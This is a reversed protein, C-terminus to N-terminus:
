HHGSIKDKEKRVKQQVKDIVLDVLPFLDPGSEEIHVQSGWKFHLNAGLEYGHTTKTVVFELSQINEKLRDLHAVKEDFFQKTKDSPSYHIGRLEYHM